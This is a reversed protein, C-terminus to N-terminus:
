SVFESGPQLGETSLAGGGHSHSLPFRAANELPACGGGKGCGRAAERAFEEPTRYGLSSHPREQNYQKQWAVIKRRAEFL